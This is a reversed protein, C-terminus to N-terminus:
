FQFYIFNVPQGAGGWLVILAAAIGTSTALAPLPQLRASVVEYANPGLVCIVASAALLLPKEVHGGLGSTGAMARLMNAASSFDASRFLVWGAVVFVFTLLWAALPPLMLGSAQWARGTVLGLGHYLGWALFIWGAGHWFGCLGMTILAAFVYRVRGHRSGGIPIYVYDRLFRSLTMHWRRWFEGLSTALYPQNFNQPLQLGLMLGIGMAMESYASFDLYLQFSFALAGSWATVFSVPQVASLFVTDAIPGLADALFIKKALGTILLTSGKALRESVGPRWPDLDFQPIIEHHRVIPGAILRPFFTVFLAFRRAGYHPANHWGLDALYSVLEFTYFSIGIPLLIGITPLHFGSALLINDAFFGWYKFFGLVLLNAVIAAVLIARSRRGSAIFAEALVWSVLGQGILLPLFRPDWWGYFFLSGVVLLWERAAVRRALGYWGILMLPLFILLFGQSQFLM